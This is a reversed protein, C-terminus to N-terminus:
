VGFVTYVAQWPRPIGTAIRGLMGIGYLFATAILLVFLLAIDSWGAGLTGGGSKRLFVMALGLGVLLGGLNRLADRGEDPAFLAIFPGRPTSGGSPLRSISRM